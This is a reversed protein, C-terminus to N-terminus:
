MAWFIRPIISTTARWVSPTAGQFDMAGFHSYTSKLTIQPRTMNRPRKTVVNIIGGMNSGWVSSAGGKIVEVQDIMEQPYSNLMSWNNVVEGVDVGDVMKRIYVDEYGDIYMFTGLTTSGSGSEVDVGTINNLAQLINVNPTQALKTETLIEVNQPVQQLSEAERRATVTVQHAYGMFLTMNLEVTQGAAITIDKRTEPVFGTLEFVVKYVGPPINKVLFTGAPGTMAFKKTGSVTVKVTPLPLHENADIVKGKLDGGEQAQLAGSFLFLSFGFFLIGLAKLTKTMNEEATFPNRAAAWFLIWGDEHLSPSLSPNTGGRNMLNERVRDQKM